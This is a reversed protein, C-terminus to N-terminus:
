CGGEKMVKEIEYGAAISATRAIISYAPPINNLCPDDQFNKTFKNLLTSFEMGRTNLNEISSKNKNARLFGGAVKADILYIVPEAVYNNETVLSSPICEQIVIDRVPKGGKSVRMRKRKEANLSKMEEPNKVNIVAMGYTGSNSKIFLTPEEGINRARYEENLEEFLKGATDALKLRDEDKDFNADQVDQTKISILWPDISIINALENALENYFDFHTDKKRSHWGIEIPPEIPQNINSLIKPCDISFDNNILILDPTAVPTKIYHDENYIKFAKIPDGSLTDFSFEDKNIDEAIIGVSVEFGAKKLIEKIVHINEWYYPNRTHLEPVILINKSNPYKKAIYERFLKSACIRNFEPLNNFGAPFVNTDVPALKFNSIRIDVSTYLPISVRNSHDIIWDQINTKKDIIKQNIENLFNM